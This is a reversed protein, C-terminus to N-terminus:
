VFIQIAKGLVRLIDTDLRHVRFIEYVIKNLYM